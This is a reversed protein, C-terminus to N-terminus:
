SKPQQVEFYFGIKLSRMRRDMGASRKEGSCLKRFKASMIFHLGFSISNKRKDKCFKIM